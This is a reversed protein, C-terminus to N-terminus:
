IEDIVPNYYPSSEIESELQKLLQIEYRYRICFHNFKNYFIDWHYKSVYKEDLGAKEFEEPGHHDPLDDDDDLELVTDFDINSNVKPWLIQDGDDDNVQIIQNLKHSENLPLIIINDHPISTIAQHTSLQGLFNLHEDQVPFGWTSLQENSQQTHTSEVEKNHGLFHDILAEWGDKIYIYYSIDDNSHVKRFPTTNDHLLTHLRRRLGSEFTELWPRYLFIHQTKSNQKIQNWFRLNDENTFQPDFAGTTYLRTLTHKGMMNSYMEQSASGCRHYTYLVKNLKEFHLKFLNRPIAEFFQSKTKVSNEIGNYLKSIKNTFNMEQGSLSFIFDYQNIIISYYFTPIHWHNEHKVM